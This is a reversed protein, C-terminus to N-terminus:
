RREGMLGMVNVMPSDLYSSTRHLCFSTWASIDSVSLLQQCPEIAQQLQVHGLNLLATSPICSEMGMEQLAALDVGGISVM